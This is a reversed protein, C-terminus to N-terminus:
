PAGYVSAAGSRDLATLQLSAFSGTGNCQPYHMVSASDYSTLVRWNNDEFCAGSQPRTHEHRFGLTHGLEHRLIGVLNAGAAFSTNDIQVNRTSRAQAPFFARALFRGNVNIPNVDFVVNANRSTCNADQASNYVYRVNAAAQWAGTASAMARVVAAKNAGFRNSVCYSLNLKQANSWRDDGAGVRNIILNGVKIYKEWEDELAAEGVVVSDGNYVFVDEGDTDPVTVVQAKFDAYSLGLQTTTVDSEGGVAADNAGVGCGALVVLAAFLTKKM